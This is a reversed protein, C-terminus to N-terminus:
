RFLLPLFQNADRRWTQWEHATGPSEYFTVKVGANKLAEAAHKIPEGIQPEETGAGMWFLKVKPNFAKPDAFAGDYATATDFNRAASGVDLPETSSGLNPLIPGSFSGIYAFKDLHHLTIFLTQMGGMSLGAMARHDRDPITRYTADIMPILDDLVVDQFTDFAQRLTKESMGHGFVAPAIEGARTAYGCDMVIIM